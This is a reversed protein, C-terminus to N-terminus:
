GTMGDMNWLLHYIQLKALTEPVQGQLEHHELCTHSRIM